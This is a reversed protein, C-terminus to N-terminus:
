SHTGTVAIRPVAALLERTYADQPQTIVRDTPGTEIVRGARMIAVRDCLEAVVALDHSIFLIGMESQDRLGRLLELVDGQVTVDLASTPEDALLLDCRLALAMAISVRQLQGGSLQSPYRSLLDPSLSVSRLAAAALEGAETRSHAGHLRLARLFIQGVRFVPNFAMAPSQFIMAVRRGRIDQMDRQPLGVLERGDLRISGEVRAGLTGALGLIASTTMSKGSGSEGALGVIQARDVELRDMDVVSRSGFRIRLDVIELLSV